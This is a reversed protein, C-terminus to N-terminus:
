KVLKAEGKYEGNIWYSIGRFNGHPEIYISSPLHIISDDWERKSLQYEIEEVLIKTKKNKQIKREYDLNIIPSTEISYNVTVLSDILTKCLPNNYAYSPEYLVYIFKPNAPNYSFSISPIDMPCRDFVIYDTHPNILTKHFYFKFKCAEQREITIYLNNEGIKYTKSYRNEIVCGSVLISSIIILIIKIKM